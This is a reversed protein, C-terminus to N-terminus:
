ISCTAAAVAIYLQCPCAGAAALRRRALLEAFRLAEEPSLRVPLWTEPPDRFSCPRAGRTGSVQTRHALRTIELTGEIPEVPPADAPRRQRRRRRPM